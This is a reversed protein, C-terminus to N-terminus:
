KELLGTQEFDRDREDRIELSKRASLAVEYHFHELSKVAFDFLTRTGKKSCKVRGCIGPLAKLLVWFSNFQFLTPL